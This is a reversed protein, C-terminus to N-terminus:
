IHTNIYIILMWAAAFQFSAADDSLEIYITGCCVCKCKNICVTMTRCSLRCPQLSVQKTTTTAQHHLSFIHRRTTTHTPTNQHATKHTHTSSSTREKHTHRNSAERRFFWWSSSPGLPYRQQHVFDLSVLSAVVMIIIPHGQKKEMLDSPVYIIFLPFCVHAM